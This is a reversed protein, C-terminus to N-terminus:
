TLQITNITITVVTAVVKVMIFYVDLSLVISKFNTNAMLPWLRILISYSM